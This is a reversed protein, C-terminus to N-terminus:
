VAIQIKRFNTTLEKISPFSIKQNTFKNITLDKDYKHFIQKMTRQKYKMCLTKVCSTKIIYYIWYLQKRTNLHFYYYNFIKQLFKNYFLVIQFDSFKIWINKQLSKNKYLFDHNKLHNKIKNKDVTIRLKHKRFYLIFGLFYISQKKFKKIFIKQPKIQLKTILWTKIKNRILVMFTYTGYLIIIFENIYRIYFIKKYQQQFKQIEKKIYLDFKSLYISFLISIYAKSVFKQNYFQSILSIFKKDKINQKLYKLVFHIKLDYSNLKVELGFNWNSYSLKIKQLVDHPTNQFNYIKNLILRLCEQVILDDFCVKKRLFIPKYIQNKLSDHLNILQVLSYSEISQSIIKSCFDFKKSNRFIILFGFFLIQPYTIQQFLSNFFYKKSCNVVICKNKLIPQIYEVLWFKERNTLTLNKVLDRSTKNLIFKLKM